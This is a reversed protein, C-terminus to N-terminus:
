KFSLRTDTPVEVQPTKRFIDIFVDRLKLGTYILKGKSFFKMNDGGLALYDSTVIYYTKGNQPKEGNILTKVLQNKEVEINLKSVPNNKKTHLYYDFLGNLDEGKMEVIVIENEFPMVEFIHKLLIDGKAIISRIGGINIVSADVSSIGNEKAWKEGAQYTYDALLNGLNSNEGKKNLELPTYSIKENMQKELSHKYPSITNNIAENEKLESTIETNRYPTVNSVNFSTKCSTFALLALIGIFSKNKM